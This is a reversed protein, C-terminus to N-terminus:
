RSVLCSCLTGIVTYETGPSVTPVTVSVHGKMIDFNDALPHEINLIGREALYVKGRRNTIQTPPSSTNWMVNQISGVKWVTGSHPYTVPPSYVTMPRATAVNLSSLALIIQVLAMWASLLHNLM